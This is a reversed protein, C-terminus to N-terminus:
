AAAVEAAPAAVKTATDIAPGANQVARELDEVVLLLVGLGVLVLGVWIWMARALLNEVGSLWCAVDLFSCGGSSSGPAPAGAGASAAGSGFVAAIYGGLTKPDLFNGAQNLLQVEVHPGTSSGSSPDGLAGGSFGLLQGAQVTQGPAVAFSTLHGVAESLGNTRVFVRKGWGSKGRDETGVVGAFAAYIPTGVPTGFDVGLERGFDSFAGFDLTVPFPWNDAM